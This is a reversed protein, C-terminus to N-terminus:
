DKQKKFCFGVGILIKLIKLNEIEIEMPNQTKKTSSKQFILNKCLSINSNGYNNKQRLISKLTFPLPMTYNVCGKNLCTISCAASQLGNHGLLTAILFLKTNPTTELQHSVQPCVVDVSFRTNHPLLEFPFPPLPISVHTFCSYRKKNKHHAQMEDQFCFPCMLDAVLYLLQYCSASSAIKMKKGM